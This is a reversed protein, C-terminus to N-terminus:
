NSKALFLASELSLTVAMFGSKHCFITDTLGSVENLENDRLGRFREPLHNQQSNCFVGYQEESRPYVVRTIEPHSRIFDKFPLNKDLLLIGNEVTKAYEELEVVVEAEKIAAIIFNELIGSTFELAKNFAIEQKEPEDSSENMMAILLSVSPRPDEQFLGNDVADIDKILKDDVWKTAFAIEYDSKLGKSEFIRKAYHRWILGATAFPTGDERAETFSNQHHDFRLTNPDYEAGVDLVIKAQKIVEDDRSRVIEHEEVMQVMSIAFVEDAHFRGSHTVLM